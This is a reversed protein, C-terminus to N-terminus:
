YHTRTGWRSRLALGRVGCYACDELSAIRTRNRGGGRDMSGVPGQAPCIAEPCRRGHLALANMSCNASSSPAPASTANWRQTNTTLSRAPMLGHSRGRRLDARHAPGVRDAALQPLEEIWDILFRISDRQPAKPHGLSCHGICAPEHVRVAIHMDTTAM